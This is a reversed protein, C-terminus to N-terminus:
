TLFIDGEGPLRYPRVRSRCHRLWKSLTGDIRRVRYSSPTLLALDLENMQNGGFAAGLQSQKSM